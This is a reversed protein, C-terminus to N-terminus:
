AADGSSSSRSARFFARVSDSWLLGRAIVAYGVYMCLVPLTGPLASRTYSDPRVLAPFAIFLAAALIAVLVWRAWRRGKLLQHCLLLLLATRVVHQPLVSMGRSALMLTSVVVSSIVLFGVSIQLYRKGYFEATREVELAAGDGGFTM